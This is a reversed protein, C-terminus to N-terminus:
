KEEYSLLERLPRKDGRWLVSAIILVFIIIASLSLILEIDYLVFSKIKLYYKTIFITAIIATIYGIIGSVVTTSITELYYLREIFMRTSGLAMLQASQKRRGSFSSVILTVILFLALILPPLSIVFIIVLLGGILGEAFKTIETTDITSVNPFNQALFSIFRAKEVDNLNTYGFFTAPYRELDIPNFVFYFFPLGSRTESERISTVRSEIEFGSVSLVINSGLKINAREAFDREVSVENRINSLWSGEIVKENSLLDSRYTLNYERGLERSVSGDSLAVGKQIDLGDITLIRAGVNPFLEITPVNETISEVQSKQVDIVYTSPLTEGLDSKIFTALTSQLLILLSLSALAIYLSTISIIGFLGDAHKYSILTRILFSFRDRKNYLYRILFYFASAIITYVTIIALISLFGYLYDDLLFIAILVLPFLTITTILLFDKFMSKEDVDNGGSLLLKPNLRLLSRLSPVFSAFAVGFVIIFTLITPLYLSVSPLELAFNSGVYDLIFNFFVISSLGGTITSLLLVYLLVLSLTSALKIKDFGIALLVAFSNRMVKLFYMMGAYINV